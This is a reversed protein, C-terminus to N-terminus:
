LKLEKHMNYIEYKNRTCQCALFFQQEHIYFVNGITSQFQFTLHSRLVDPQFSLVLEFYSKVFLKLLSQHANFGFLNMTM